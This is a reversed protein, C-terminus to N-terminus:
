VVVTRAGRGARWFSPLSVVEDLRSGVDSVTFGALAIETDCSLLRVPALARAQTLLEAASPLQVHGPSPRELVGDMVARLAPACLLVDVREGVSAATVVWLGLRLLREEDASVVLFVVHPESSM